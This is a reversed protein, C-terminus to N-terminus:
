LRPPSPNPPPALGRLVALRRPWVPYAGSPALLVFSSTALAPTIGVCAVTCHTAEPPCPTGECSPCHQSCLGGGDIAHGTEPAHSPTWALAVTPLGAAVVALCSLVAFLVRLRRM